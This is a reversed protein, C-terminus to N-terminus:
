GTVAIHYKGISKGYTQWRKATMGAEAPYISFGTTGAQALLRAWHGPKVTGMQGHYSAVTPHVASRPFWPSAAHVCVSPSVALGFDNVYAQPLFAFGAKAWPALGVGEADCLSSLGAPLTPEAARFAAVFDASRQPQAPDTSEADAIYFSFGDGAIAQTALTADAAPDNGLVSWGGVPLGSAQRFKAIWTPDPPDAVGDKGFYVAAWGFGENHLTQGFQVPDVASPHWLIAGAHNWLTLPAAPTSPRSARSSAPSMGAVIASCVLLLAVLARRGRWAKSAM